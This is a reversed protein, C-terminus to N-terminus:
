TSNESLDGQERALKVRDILKPLKIDKLEQLEVKLEDLGEQTLHFVTQTM